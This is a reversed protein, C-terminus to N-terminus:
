RADGRGLECRAGLFRGVRDGCPDRHGFVGTVRHPSGRCRQEHVAGVVPLDHSLGAARQGAALRARHDLQARSRRDIVVAIDGERCHGIGAVDGVVDHILRPLGGAEIRPAEGRTFPDVTLHVETVAPRHPGHGLAVTGIGTLLPPSRDPQVRATSDCGESLAVRGEAGGLVSRVELHQPHRGRVVRALPHQRGKWERGRARDARERLRVSVACQGGAGQEGVRSGEAGVQRAPDVVGIVARGHQSGLVDRRPGAGRM